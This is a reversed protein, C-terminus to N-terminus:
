MSPLDWQEGDRRSALGFDVAIGLTALLMVDDPCRTDFLVTLRGSGNLRIVKAHVWSSEAPSIIHFWVDCGVPPSDDVELAAGEPSIDLLRAEMQRDDAGAWWELVCRNPVAKLRRSRRRDQVLAIM